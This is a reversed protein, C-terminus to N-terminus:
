ELIFMQQDDIFRGPHRDVGPRADSGAGKDVREQM